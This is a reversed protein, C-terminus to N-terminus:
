MSAAASALEVDNDDTLVLRSDPNSSRSSSITVQQVRYGMLSHYFNSLWHPADAAELIEEDEGRLDSIYQVLEEDTEGVYPLTAWNRLDDIMANTLELIESRVMRTEEIENYIQM